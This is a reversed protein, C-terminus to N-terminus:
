HVKVLGPFRNQILDVQYGELKESFTLHLIRPKRGNAETGTEFPEGQHTFFFNHSIDPRLKRKTQSRGSRDKSEYNHGLPTNQAAHQITINKRQNEELVTDYVEEDWLHEHDSCRREHSFFTHVRTDEDSDRDWSYNVTCGCTDPQWNTVVKEGM